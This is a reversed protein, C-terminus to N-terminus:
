CSVCSLQIVSDSNQCQLRQEVPLWYPVFRIPPIIRNGGIFRFPGIQLIVEVIWCERIWMYVDTQPVGKWERM